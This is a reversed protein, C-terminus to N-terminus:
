VVRRIPTTKKREASTYDFSIGACELIYKEYMIAFPMLQKLTRPKYHESMSGSLVSHGAIQDMAGSPCGAAEAMLEFTRRMGHPTLHAIGAHQLAVRIAARPDVVSGATRNSGFVYPNEPRRPCSLVLHEFYPTLPIVRIRESTQDSKDHISMRKHRFDIDEWRLKALEMKRAGTLILGQVYASMVKNRSLEIGEFFLSMQDEDIFDTRRANKRTPLNDQIDSARAARADVLRKYDKRSSCWRLFGSLIEVAKKAQARGRKQQVESWEQIKESSLYVLNLSMLSHLPGPLTTGSGRKYPEGGPKSMDVLTGRYVESWSEKKKPRGEALYVTWAEGVTIQVQRSEERVAVDKAILESKVERPDRGGDILQQLRRAEKQADPLDWTAVKGIVMRLDSGAFRGQFVYAPQGNPKLKVGLGKTRPDWLFSQSKGPPVRLKTFGDPSFKLKANALQVALVAPDTDKTM